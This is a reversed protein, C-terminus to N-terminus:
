KNEEKPTAAEVKAKIYADLDANNFKTCFEAFSMNKKLAPDLKAFTARANDALKQIDAMSQIDAFGRLDAVSGPAQDKLISFKDEAIAGQGIKELIHELGVDDAFSEIFEKRNKVGTVIQKTVLKVNGEADTEYGDIILTDVIDKEACPDNAQLPPLEVPGFATNIKLVDKSM